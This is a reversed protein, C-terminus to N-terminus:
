NKRIKFFKIKEFVKEETGSGRLRIPMPARANSYKDTNRDTQRDTQGTQRDTQRDDRERM